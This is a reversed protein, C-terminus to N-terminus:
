TFCGRLEQKPARYTTDADRLGLMGRPPMPPSPHTGRLVGVASWPRTPGVPGGWGVLGVKAVPKSTKVDKQSAAALYKYSLM